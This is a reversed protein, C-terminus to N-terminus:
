VIPALAALVLIQTRQKETEVLREALDLLSANQDHRRRRDLTDAVGGADRHLDLQAVRAEIERFKLGHHVRDLGIGQALRADLPHNRREPRARRLERDIDVPDLDLRHTKRGILYKGGERSIEPGGIDVLEVLEAASELDVDLGIRLKAQPEFIEAVERHA